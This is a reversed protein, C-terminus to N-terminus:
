DRKIERLEKTGTKEQQKKTEEERSRIRDKATRNRIRHTAETQM